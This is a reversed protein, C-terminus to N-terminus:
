IKRECSNFRNLPCHLALPLVIHHPSPLATSLSRSPWLPRARHCVNRERPVQRSSEDISHVCPSISSFSPKSACCLVIRMTSFVVARMTIPAHVGDIPLDNAPLVSHLHPESSHPHGGQRQGQGCHNHDVGAITHIDATHRFHAAPDSQLWKPQPPPDLKEPLVKSARHGRRTIQSGLHHEILFM